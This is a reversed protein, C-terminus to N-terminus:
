PQTFAFTLIGQTKMAIGNLFTPKFVWKSAAEEAVPRLLPPGSIAKAEIVRGDEAITIEVKVDGSLRLQKAIAPYGPVVKNIANGLLVGESVKRTERKQSPDIELNRTGLSQSFTEALLPLQVTSFQAPPSQINITPLVTSPQSVRREPAVFMQPLDRLRPVDFLERRREVVAFRFKPKGVIGQKFTGVSILVVVKREDPLLATTEVCAQHDGGTGSSVDAQEGCDTLQWTVGARQGVILKVWTGFPQDPLGSDLQSVHTQQVLSVARGELTPNQASYGILLGIMM